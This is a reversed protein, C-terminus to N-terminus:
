IKDNRHKMKMGKSINRKHDETLKRGKLAQRIHKIHTATKKIGRMKVSIKKRIIDNMM